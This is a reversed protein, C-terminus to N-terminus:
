GSLIDVLFSEYSLDKMYWNKPIGKNNEWLKAIRKGGLVDLFILDVYILWCRRLKARMSFEGLWLCSGKVSRWPLVRDNSSPQLQVCNPGVILAKM